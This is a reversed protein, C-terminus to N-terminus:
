DAPALTKYKWRFLEPTENIQALYKEIRAKLEDRSSVRIGRLFQKAMKAFFSEILNLWSGHKPTFVFEFRNPVTALYDRTERSIHASHNDLIMRIRAHRPYHGDVLRLFEVFEASRHREAVLGHVHGTLLDVGALLTLTGHRVYEHDRTWSAHRGAVPPLEKGTSQIAQMGPKEDYSLYATLDSEAGEDRAMRVEQYIGLVEVMKRDFEPDRKEVHYRVKHPRLGGAALIKSVTGRGLRRLSPHGAEACHGRAHRSLLTTTWLEEAYGLEKPKVCALSRVWMRAEEPIAPKLGRGPLDELAAAVGLQLAKDVCRGVKRRNTELKRAIASITEGNAFALLMKAREIRHARGSRARVISELEERDLDSLGLKAKGSEFPM